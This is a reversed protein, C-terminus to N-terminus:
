SEDGNEDDTYRTTKYEEVQVVTGWETKLPYLADAQSNCIGKKYKIEFFVIKRRIRWPILRASADTLNM